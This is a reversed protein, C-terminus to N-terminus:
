AQLDGFITNIAVFRLIVVFYRIDLKKTFVRRAKECSRGGQRRTYPSTSSHQINFIWNQISSCGPWVSLFDSGMIQGAQGEYWSQAYHIEGGPCDPIFRMFTSLKMSKYWFWLLPVNNHFQNFVKPPFYRRWRTPLQGSLPRPSEHWRRESQGIQFINWEKQFNQFYRKECIAESQSIQLCIGSM